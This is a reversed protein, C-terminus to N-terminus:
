SAAESLHLNLLILALQRRRLGLYVHQLIREAIRHRLLNRGGIQDVRQCTVQDVARQVKGSSRMHSMASAAM